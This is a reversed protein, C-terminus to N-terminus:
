GRCGAPFLSVTNNADLCRDMLSHAIRQWFANFNKFKKDSGQSLIKAQRLSQRKKRRLIRRRTTSSSRASRLGVLKPLNEFTWRKARDLTSCWQDVRVDSLKIWFARLSHNECIRNEFVRSSFLQFRAAKHIIHFPSMPFTEVPSRTCGIQHILM